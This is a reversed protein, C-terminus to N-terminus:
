GTALQRHGSTMIRYRQFQQELWSREERSLWASKNLQLSRNVVRGHMAADAM